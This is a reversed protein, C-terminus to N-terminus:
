VNTGSERGSGAPPKGHHAQATLANKLKQVTVCAQEAEDESWEALAAQLGHARSLRVRHLLDLGEETVRIVNARGDSPDAHRSIFGSGVLEAVQRSLVSQSICLQAALDGQRSPGKAELIGLVAAGGPLLEGEEPHHLALRMARGVLYLERILDEATDASVAVISEM